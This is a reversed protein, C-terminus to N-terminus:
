LFNLGYVGFFLVALSEAAANIDRYITSKDVFEDKAIEEPTKPNPSIYMDYLVRYRRGDEDRNSNECSLRYSEIMRNMHDVMVKSRAASEKIAEVRFSESRGGSMQELLDQLEYDYDLKSAEYVSENVHKVIDRYKRLALKINARKGYRRAKIMKEEEERLSAIVYSTIEKKLEDDLRKYVQKKTM